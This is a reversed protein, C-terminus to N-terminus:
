SENETRLIKNNKPKQDLVQRVMQAMEAKVVPKMLFGKIGINKSQEENIRESFGTCIIIQINPQISLLAKSLQDGTMGPMTMDSIVLDFSDPNSKFTDLADGSSTKVTVQYGLRSLMQGELKAVSLEDDVLLISETGTSTKTVKELTVVESSKEM